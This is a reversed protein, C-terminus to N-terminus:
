HVSGTLNTPTGPVPPPAGGSTFEFVGRDWVGDSGPRPSGAADVNFPAALTM